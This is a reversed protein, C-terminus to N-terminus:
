SNFNTLIKDIENSSVAIIINNAYRFYFPIFISTKKLADMELDEMMLNAIIPSLPSGM